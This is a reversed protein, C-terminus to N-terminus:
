VCVRNVIYESVVNIMGEDKEDDGVNDDDNDSLPGLGADGNQRGLRCM